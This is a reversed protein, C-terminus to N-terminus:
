PRLNFVVWSRDEPMEISAAILGYESFAEDETNAMLTQYVLNIGPAAVGKIIYPNLSDFTGAVALNIQGGKPASANVYDLNKFDAAYKPAGHMAIGPLPTINEARAPAPLSLFALFLATTAFLKSM